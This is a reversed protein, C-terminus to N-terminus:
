KFFVHHSIDNQDRLRPLIIESEKKPVMGQLFFSCLHKAGSLM